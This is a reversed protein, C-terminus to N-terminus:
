SNRRSSCSHLFGVLFSSTSSLSSSKKFPLTGWLSATIPRVGLEKSLWKWLGKLLKPEGGTGSWDREDGPDRMSSYQEGWPESGWWPCVSCQALRHRTYGVEMNSKPWHRFTGLNHTNATQERHGSSFVLYWTLYQVTPMAILAWAELTPKIHLIQRCGGSPAAPHMSTDAM